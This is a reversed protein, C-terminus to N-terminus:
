ELDFENGKAGRVFALWEGPTFVLRTRRLSHRLVFWETKGAENCVTGVQIGEKTSDNSGVSKYSIDHLHLGAEIAQPPWFPIDSAAVFYRLTAASLERRVAMQTDREGPLVWAYREAVAGASCVGLQRFGWEVPRLHWMQRARSGLLQSARDIPITLANKLDVNPVAEELIAGFYRNVTAAIQGVNHSAHEQLHGRMDEFRAGAHLDELAGQAYREHYRLPERRLQGQPNDSNFGRLALLLGKAALHGLERSQLGTSESIERASKFEAAINCSREPTILM